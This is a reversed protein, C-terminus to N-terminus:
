EYILLSHRQKSVVLSIDSIEIDELSWKAFLKIESASEAM